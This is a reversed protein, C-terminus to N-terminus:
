PLRCSPFHNQKLTLHYKLYYFITVNCLLAVSTRKAARSSLRRDFVTFGKWFSKSSQYRELIRALQSGGQSQRQPESIFGSGDTVLQASSILIDLLVHGKYVPEPSGAVIKRCMSKMLKLLLALGVKLLLWKM